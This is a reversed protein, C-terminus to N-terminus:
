RAAAVFPGRTPFGSEVDVKSDSMGRYYAFPEGGPPVHQAELEALVRQLATSLFRPLDAIQVTARVVATPEAAHDVVAFETM